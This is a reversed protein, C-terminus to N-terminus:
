GQALSRRRLVIAIERSFHCKFRVFRNSREKDAPAVFRREFKLADRVGEAVHVRAAIAQRLQEGSAAELGAVAKANVQGVADLHDVEIQGGHLQAHNEDRDVNQIALALQACM